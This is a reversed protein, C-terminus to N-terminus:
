NNLSAKYELIEQIYPNNPDTLDDFAEQTAEESIDTVDGGGLEKIAAESYARKEEITMNDMEEPTLERTTGDNYVGPSVEYKEGTSESSDPTETANPDPIKELNRDLSYQRFEEIFEHTCGEEQEKAADVHDYGSLYIDEYMAYRTDQNNRLDEDTVGNDYKYTEVYLDFEYELSDANVPTATPTPEPTPTPTATPAPTAATEPTEVVAPASGAKYWIAAAIVLVVVVAAAIWKKM